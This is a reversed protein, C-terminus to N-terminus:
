GEVQDNQSEVEEGHQEPATKEGDGKQFTLPTAPPSATGFRLVVAVAQAHAAACVLERVLRKSQVPIRFSNKFLYPRRAVNHTDRMARREKNMVIGKHTRQVMAGVQLLFDRTSHSLSVILLEGYFAVHVQFVFLM